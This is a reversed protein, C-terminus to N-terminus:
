HESAKLHAPLAQFTFNHRIAKEQGESAAVPVSPGGYVGGANRLKAAGPLAANIVSPM